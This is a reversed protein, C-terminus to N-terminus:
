ELSSHMPAIQNPKHGCLINPEAVKMQISQVFIYGDM